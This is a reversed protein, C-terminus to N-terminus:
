EDVVIGLIFERALNDLELIFETTQAVTEDEKQVRRYGL